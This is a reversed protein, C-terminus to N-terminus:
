LRCLMGLCSCATCFVGSRFCVFVCELCVVGLVSGGVVVGTM